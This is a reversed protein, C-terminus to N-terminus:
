SSTLPLERIYRLLQRSTYNVCKMFVSIDMHSCWILCWDCIVLHKFNLSDYFMCRNTVRICNVSM